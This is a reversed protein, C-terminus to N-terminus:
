LYKALSLNSLRATMAFLAELQGEAQVLKSGAEYPDAGILNSREIQLRTLNAQLRTSSREITQETMGLDARTGALDASGEILLGGGTRVMAAQATHDGDFSGDAVLAALTLGMIMKRIGPDAATQSFSISTSPDVSFSDGGNASGRYAADHFGGDGPGAEFWNKLADIAGEATSAGSIVAQAQAVLNTASVLPAMNVRTGSFLFKGGANANLASIVTSLQNKAVRAEAKLTPGTALTTDALMRGGSDDSVQQLTAFAAQKASATAAAEASVRLFASAETIGRELRAFQMMDGGLHRPVDAKVGTAVEASLRQIENRLGINSQRQTFIRSLDGVSVFNM